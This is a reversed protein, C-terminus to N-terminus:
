QQSADGGYQLARWGVVYAIVTFILLLRWWDVSAIMGQLRDLFLEVNGPFHRVLSPIRARENRFGREFSDSTWPTM